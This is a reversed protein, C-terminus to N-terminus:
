PTSISYKNQKHLRTACATLHEGGVRANSNADRAGWTLKTTSSVPVNFKATRKTSTSLLLSHALVPNWRREERRWWGVYLVSVSSFLQMYLWGLKVEKLVCICICMNGCLTSQGLPTHNPFLGCWCWRDAYCLVWFVYYHLPNANYSMCVRM